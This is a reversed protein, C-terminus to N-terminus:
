AHMTRLTQCYRILGESPFHAKCPFLPKMVRHFAMFPCAIIAIILRFLMFTIGRHRIVARGEKREKKEGRQLPGEISLRM